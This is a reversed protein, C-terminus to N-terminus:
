FPNEENPTQVLVFMALLAIAGGALLTIIVFCKVIM